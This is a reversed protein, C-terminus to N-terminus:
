PQFRKIYPNIMLRGKPPLFGAYYLMHLLYGDPNNDRFRRYFSTVVFGLATFILAEELVIGVVLGILMPALEDMSWLLLHPPDDIRSPINIPKL